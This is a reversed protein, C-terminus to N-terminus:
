YCFCCCCFVIILAMYFWVWWDENHIDLILGVRQQYWSERVEDGSCCSLAESRCLPDLRRNPVALDKISPAVPLWWWEQDTQVSAPNRNWRGRVNNDKDQLAQTVTFVKVWRSPSFELFCSLCQTKNRWTSKLLYRASITLSSCRHPQRLTLDTCQILVQPGHIHILLHSQWDLAACHPSQSRSIPSPFRHPWTRCCYPRTHRSQNAEYGQTDFCQM